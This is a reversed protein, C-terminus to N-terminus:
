LNQSLLSQIKVSLYENKFLRNKIKNFINKNIIANSFSSFYYSELSFPSRLSFIIAIWILLSLVNPFSSKDKIKENLRVKWFKVENRKLNRVFGSEFFVDIRSIPIKWFLLFAISALFKIREFILKFKLISAM